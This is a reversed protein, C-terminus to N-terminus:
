LPTAGGMKTSWDRTPNSAHVQTWKDLGNEFDEEFISDSIAKSQGYANVALFTSIIIAACKLMNTFVFNKM